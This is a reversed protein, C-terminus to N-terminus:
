RSAPRELCADENIKRVKGVHSHAASTWLLRQTMGASRIVTFWRDGASIGAHRAGWGHRAWDGV